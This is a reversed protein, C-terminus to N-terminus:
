SLLLANHIVTETKLTNKFDPSIFIFTFYYSSCCEVLPQGDRSFTTNSFSSFESLQSKPYVILIKLAFSHSAPM